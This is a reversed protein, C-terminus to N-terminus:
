NLKFCIVNILKDVAQQYDKDTEKTMYKLFRLYFCSRSFNRSVSFQLSLVQSEFSLGQNEFGDHHLKLDLNDVQWQGASHRCSEYKLTVFVKFNAYVVQLDILGNKMVPLYTVDFGESELARCSDM